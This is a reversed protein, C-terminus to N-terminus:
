EVDFQNQLGEVAAVFTLFHESWGSIEATWKTKYNVGHSHSSVDVIYNNMGFPQPLLSRNTDCDQSDSFVMIRDPTGKTIGKIHELCQRTFIGGGGLKHMQEMIQDALEMGRKPYMIRETKHTRYSDSGATCWIEVEECLEQALCAMAAAVQVRNFTSKGSIASQMSGSVDVVFISKGKLKPLDAYTRLMLENIDTKFEPAFQAASFFNLPLLMQSKISKFGKRIVSADVSAEKMNRLNRLFALAGLKNENILRTWTDRKDKGTSLAVEWTDPIDLTRDAIKKYLAEKVTDGPVPKVLFMVDRLKVAGDRDYKAFQYENFKDFCAALGKKAQAALPAHKKGKPAPNTKWYLALFDTIQDPRTVVQPLADAVYGKHTNYKLMEILIFLPVHRLKQQVRAEVALDAVRVPDVQPILSAINEGNKAGSEYALDEWLLCSLVTRRLLEYAGQKAAFVGYGGALQHSKDVKSVPKTNPNLKSM